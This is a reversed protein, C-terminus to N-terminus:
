RFFIYFVKNQTGCDCYDKSCSLRNKNLHKAWENNMYPFIRYNELYIQRLIM